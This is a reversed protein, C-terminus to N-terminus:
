ILFKYAFATGIVFFIPTHSILTPLIWSTQVFSGYLCASSQTNNSRQFDERYFVVFSYSYDGFILSM